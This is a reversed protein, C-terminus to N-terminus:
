QTIGPSNFRGDERKTARYFRPLNPAHFVVQEGCDAIGKAAMERIVVVGEVAFVGGSIHQFRDSIGRGILDGRGERRVRGRRAHTQLVVRPDPVPSVGAHLTM